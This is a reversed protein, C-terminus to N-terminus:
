GFWGNEWDLASDYCMTSVRVDWFSYREEL